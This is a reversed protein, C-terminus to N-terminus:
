SGHDEERMRAEVFTRYRSLPRELLERPRGDEVIRGKELVLIRDCAELEDIRHSVLVFGRAESMFRAFLARESASDVASLPDDLFFFPRGSVSSRDEV